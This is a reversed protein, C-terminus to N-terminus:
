FPKGPTKLVDQNDELRPTRRLVKEAAMGDDDEGEIILNFIACINYRKFYTIQSGLQQPTLNESSFEIFSWMEGKEHSAITAVGNSSITHTIVFGNAQLVPQIKEWITPLDAYKYGGFNGSKKAESQKKIVPLEAQVKLLIKQLELSIADRKMTLVPAQPFDFTQTNM